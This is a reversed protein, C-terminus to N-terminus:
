LQARQAGANRALWQCTQVTVPGHVRDQGELLAPCIRKAYGRDRLEGHFQDVLNRRHTRILVGGTRSAAVFGLAAATKGAGAAVDMEGAGGFIGLIGARQGIKLIGRPLGTKGGGQDIDFVDSPAIVAAKDVEVIGGDFEM